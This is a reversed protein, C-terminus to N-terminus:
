SNHKMRKKYWINCEWLTSTSLRGACRMTCCWSYTSGNKSYWTGYAVPGRLSGWGSWWKSSPHHCSVVVIHWWTAKGLGLPQKNWEGRNRNVIGWGDWGRKTENSRLVLKFNKLFKTRKFEDAMKHTYRIETFVPPQYLAGPNTLNM